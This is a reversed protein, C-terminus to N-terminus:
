LHKITWIIGWKGNSGKMLCDIGLRSNGETAQQSKVQAL